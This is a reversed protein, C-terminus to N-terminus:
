KRVIAWGTGGSVGTSTGAVRSGRSASSRTSLEGGTRSSRRRDSAGSATLGSGGAAPVSGLGGTVPWGESAAAIGELSARRGGIRSSTGGMREASGRAASCTSRVTGGTGVADASPWEEDSGRAFMTGRPGATLRTGGADARGRRGNGVPGMVESGRAGTAGLAARGPASAPSPKVKRASATVTRPGLAPSGLLSDTPSAGRAGAAAGRTDAGVDMTGTEATAAEAAAAALPGVIVMPVMSTRTTSVGRRAAM